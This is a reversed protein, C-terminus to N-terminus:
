PHFNMSWFGIRKSTFPPLARTSLTEEPDGLLRFAELLEDGHPVVHRVVACGLAKTYSRTMKHRSDRYPEDHVFGPEYMGMYRTSPVVIEPPLRLANNMLVAVHRPRGQFYVINSYHFISLKLDSFPSPM